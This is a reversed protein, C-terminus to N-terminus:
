LAFLQQRISFFVYVTSCVSSMFLASVSFHFYATGAGMFFISFTCISPPPLSLFFRTVSLALYALLCRSRKLSVYTCPPCLALCPFISRFFLSQLSVHAIGLLCIKPNGTFIQARKKAFILIEMNSVVTGKAGYLWRASKAYRM